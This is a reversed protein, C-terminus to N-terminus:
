EDLLRQLHWEFQVPQEFVTGTETVGVQRLEGIVEIPMHQHQRIVFYAQRQAIGSFFSRTCLNRDAIWVDNAQVTALVDDLLAREQTYADECPFQDIVLMLCPDLVVLSKGPLAGAKLSRLVELRHETAAISNGDIIKVQHGPLLEPLEGGLERVLPALERASYRVLEQSVCPEMGNLKSYFAVRSVGIQKEFAKIATSVSPRINCVVLSLISVVTSFLLERTYQRQATADFLTDLNRASFIREM